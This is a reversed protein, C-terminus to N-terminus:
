ENGIPDARITEETFLTGYEHTASEPVFVEAATQDIALVDPDDCVRIAAFRGGQEVVVGDSIAPNNGNEDFGTRVMRSFVIYRTTGNDFALQAEGGGSYPTIARMGGKIVLEPEDGGFRYEAQVPAVGCVAVRTGDAFRCAFIPTEGAACAPAPADAPAAMAAAAHKPPIPPGFGQKDPADGCATLIVVAALGAASRM